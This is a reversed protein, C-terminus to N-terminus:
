ETELSFIQGPHKLITGIGVFDMYIYIYIYIHQPLRVWRVM